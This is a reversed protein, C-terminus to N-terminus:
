IEVVEVLRAQLEGALRAGQGAHLEVGGDGVEEGEGVVVEAEGGVVGVGGDFAGDGDSWPWLRDYVTVSECKWQFKGALFLGTVHVSLM